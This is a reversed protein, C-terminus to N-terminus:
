GKNFLQGLLSSAIDGVPLEQGTAPLQGDPTLADVVGPLLSALQGAADSPAMGSSQALQGIVGSGLVQTLQEASIPLNANKSVWSLAIPGLGSDQFKQVLGAIGGSNNSLLSMVVQMLAANGGGGGGLAAGLMDQLGGGQQGGGQMAAGVISDLLGM